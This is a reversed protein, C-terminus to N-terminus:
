PPKRKKSRASILFERAYRRRIAFLLSSLANKRITLKGGLPMPAFDISSTWPIALSLWVEKHSAAKTTSESFLFAFIDRKTLRMLFM